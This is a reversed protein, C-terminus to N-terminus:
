EGLRKRLAANEARLQEIRADMTRMLQTASEAFATLVEARDVPINLLEELDKEVEFEMEVLHSAENNDGSFDAPASVTVIRFDPSCTPTADFSFEHM